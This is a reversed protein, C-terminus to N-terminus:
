EIDIVLKPSILGSGSFQQTVNTNKGIFSMSITDDSRLLIGLIEVVYRGPKLIPSLNLAISNTTASRIVRGNVRVKIKRIQEPTQNAFGKIRLIHPQTLDARDISVTTSQVQVSGSDGEIDTGTTTTSEATEIHGIQSTHNRSSIHSATAMAISTSNLSLMSGIAVSQFIKM